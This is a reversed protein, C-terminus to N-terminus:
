RELIRLLAIFGSVNSVSTLFIPHNNLIAYYAIQFQHQNKLKTLITFNNIVLYIIRSYTKIKTQNIQNSTFLYRVKCRVM